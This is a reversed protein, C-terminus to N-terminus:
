SVAGSTALLFDIAKIGAFPVILGGLGYVLLHNCLRGTTSRPRSPIGKLALPILALIMFANFIVASLVASVPSHLRMINLASLPGESLTNMQYMQAFLAPLLAFYKALNSTFSLITLAGRTMILQKGVNIIEILKTPNSDLDVMNGAERSTQTGTNMAVGVDAQALAPADNTGDGAMAVLAGEKQESRIRDLKIEPTAQAIFDDVGAEAATSAATLANDGTVMLTRMGMKKLQAMRDPMGGKIVDKLHIVGVIRKHDSVLLPTGGNKTIDEISAKFHAPFTGGLREVHVKVEEVAGKRITRVTNGESDTLDVGSMRTKDSFPVFRTHRADLQEGRLEFHNKALVVISRGEPTEDSLSALQAIQALEQEVVGPAAIFEVAMRNGLTVTGTKDLILLNVDAAAEVARASKAVVNSRIMRDMGAIGVTNLLASVTTPILCVLLAALMPISIFSGKLGSIQGNFVAFAELSIVTILFMLAFGSLVARLIIESHTRVRKEGDILSLMRDLFSKGPDATVRYVIQDSVVRTGESVASRDGGSERIVPASEGTIASEDISAIGEVVEGDAPIIDGTRCVVLDNHRLATAQVLEELGDKKRHAYLQETAQHLKAVHYKGRSEALSEAYNAFLITLWFWFSLQLEFSRFHGLYLSHFFLVTMLLASLYTVFMVPNRYQIRPDLKKWMLSCITCFFDFNFLSPM